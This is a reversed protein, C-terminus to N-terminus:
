AGMVRAVEVANLMDAFMGPIFGDEILWGRVEKRLDLMHQPVKESERYGDGYKVLCKALVEAFQAIEEERPDRRVRFVGKSCYRSEPAFTVQGNSKMRCNGLKASYIKAQQLKAVVRGTLVMSEDRELDLALGKFYVPAQRFTAGGHSGKECEGCEICIQEWNPIDSRSAERYAPFTHIEASYRAGGWTGFVAVKGDFHGHTRLAELAKEARRGLKVTRRLARVAEKVKDPDSQNDVCFRM